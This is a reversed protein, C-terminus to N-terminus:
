RRNRTPFKRVRSVNRHKGHWMNVIFNLHIIQRGFTEKRICSEFLMKNSKAIFQENDPKKGLPVSRLFVNRYHSECADCCHWFFWQNVIAALFIARIQNLSSGNASQATRRYEHRHFFASDYRARGTAEM